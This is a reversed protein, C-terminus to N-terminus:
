GLLNVNRFAGSTIVGSVGDKGKGGSSAATAEMLAHVSISSVVSAVKESCSSPTKCLTLLRGRHKFCVQNWGTGCAGVEVVGFRRDALSM